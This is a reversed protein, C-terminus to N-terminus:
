PRGASEDMVQVVQLLKSVNHPTVSFADVASLHTRPRVAAGASPSRPREQPPHRGRDDEQLTQRPM